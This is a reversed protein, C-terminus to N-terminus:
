FTNWKAETKHKRLFEELIGEDICEEIACDVADQLPLSKIYERIKDTYVAYDRLTTCAKKLSRNNDGSINLM